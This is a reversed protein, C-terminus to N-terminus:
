RSTAMEYRVSAMEPEAGTNITHQAPLRTITEVHSRERGGEKWRHEVRFPRVSKSALPDRYDADVRFNQVGITNNGTLEFRLLIHRVGAPWRDVRVHETRGQTPGAIVAVQRWSEGGDTSTAVRVRDKEGRARVQASFGLGVLDGPLDIPVTMLGTGGKWWCADHQLDVNDFRVGMTAATENKTFAPDLTIRCAISRTAITPDSDAAVTITNAGKALWPLTRPAHQFDNELELRDLGAGNTLELRLWYAYRRYIRGKLDITKEISRDVTVAELPTFTRGNNTSIAVTLKDGPSRGTAKLRLRGGLYVYPSVM